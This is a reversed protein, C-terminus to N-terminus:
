VSVLCDISQDWAKLSLSNGVLDRDWFVFDWKQLVGLLIIHYLRFFVYHPINNQIMQFLRADLKFRLLGPQDSRLQSPQNLYNSSQFRLFTHWSLDVELYVKLYLTLSLDCIEM